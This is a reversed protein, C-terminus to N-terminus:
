CRFHPRQNGHQVFTQRGTRLELNWAGLEVSIGFELLSPRRPFRTGEPACDNNKGAESMKVRPHQHKPNPTKRSSPAQLKSSTIGYEVSSNSSASLKAMAM